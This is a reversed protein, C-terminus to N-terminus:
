KTQYSEELSFLKRVLDKFADNEKCQIIEKILQDRKQQKEMETDVVDRIKTPDLFRRTEYGKEQLLSVLGTKGFLHSLGVTM